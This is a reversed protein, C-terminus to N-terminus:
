PLAAAAAAFSITRVFGDLWVSLPFDANGRYAGIKDVTTNFSLISLRDQTWQVTPYGHLSVTQRWRAQGKLRHWVEFEGSANITHRVHVVLEHWVGLALPRPIAVMRRVNGDPGSSYACGASGCLGTQIVFEVHDGHAALGAPPGHIGQFSFQAILVGWGAPSPERWNRPFFVMLGYYDDTGLGIPRTALLECANNTAAAPLNFRAAYKGQGVLRVSLNVTGRAIGQDSALGTNACQAGWPSLKGTELDGVFVTGGQTPQAMASLPAFALVAVSLAAVLRLAVVTATRRKDENPIM